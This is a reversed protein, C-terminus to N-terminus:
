SLSRTPLKLGSCCGPAFWERLPLKKTLSDASLKLSLRGETIPRIPPVACPSSITRPMVAPEEAKWTTCVQYEKGSIDPNKLKQVDFAAIEVVIDTVPLIKCVAEICNQHAQGRNEASPAPCGKNKSHVRNDFRTALYRTKRHIRGRHLERRESLTEVEAAYLEHKKGSASLGPQKYRQDVGLTIPQRAGGPKGTLEITFAESWKVRAKGAQLLKRAKSAKTPMLPKGFRNRVYVTKEM